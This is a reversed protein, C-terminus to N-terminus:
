IMINTLPTIPPRVLAVEALLLDVGDTSAWSTKLCCSSKPELSISQNPKGVIPQKEIAGLPQEINGMTSMKLSTQILGASDSITPRSEVRLGM